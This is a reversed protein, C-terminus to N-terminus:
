IAEDPGTKRARCCYRVYQRRRSSATRLLLCRGQAIKRFVERATMAHDFKYEGAQLVSGRDLARAVLFQWESQIVGAEQLMRAIERTGTRPAIVVFAEREYGAYPMGISYYLAAGALFILLLFLIGLRKM